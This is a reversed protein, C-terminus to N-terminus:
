KKNSTYSTQMLGTWMLAFVLSLYQVTDHWAAFNFTDCSLCGIIYLLLYGLLILMIFGMALEKNNVKM